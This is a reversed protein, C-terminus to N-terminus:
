PQPTSNTAADSVQVRGTLSLLTLAYYNNTSPKFTVKGSDFVGEGVRLERKLNPDGAVKGFRDFAIYSLDTVSIGGLKPLLAGIGNTKDPAATSVSQPDLFVGTPFRVWRSVPVVNSEGSKGTRYVIVSSFALENTATGSPFGVYSIVGNEIASLRAQELAGSLTNLGGRRGAVGFLGRLSPVVLTSLIAIIAIVVLMEVLTFAATRRLKEWGSWRGFILSRSYVGSIFKNKL